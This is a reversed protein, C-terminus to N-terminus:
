SYEVALVNPPIMDVTHSDFDTGVILIDLGSVDVVLVVPDGGVKKAKNIAVKEVFERDLTLHVASRGGGPNNPALGDRLINDIYISSTGHFWVSPANLVEHPHSWPYEYGPENSNAGGTVKVWKAM